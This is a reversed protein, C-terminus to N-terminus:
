QKIVIIIIIILIIVWLGLGPDPSQNTVTPTQATPCFDPAGLQQESCFRAQVGMLQPSLIGQGWPFARQPGRAKEM